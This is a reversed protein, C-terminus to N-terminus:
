ANAVEVPWRKLRKLAGNNLVRYVALTGNVNLLVVYSKGAYEVVGSESDPQNALAGESRFYAALARSTLAAEDM